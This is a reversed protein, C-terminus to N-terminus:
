KGEKPPDIGMDIKWFTKNLEILNEEDVRTGCLKRCVECEGSIILSMALMDFDLRIKHLESNCVSCLLKLTVFRKKKM